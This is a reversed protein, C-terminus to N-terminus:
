RTMAIMGLDKEIKDFDGDPTSVAEAHGDAFVYVRAWGGAPSRRATKERLLVTKAPNKFTTLVGTSIVEFHTKASTLENTQNAYYGDVPDFQEPLAKNHDEAFMIFALAAQKGTNLRTDTEKQFADAEAAASRQANRIDTSALAERLRGNETALRAAEAQQQRLRTVEARLRLLESQQRHSDGADTPAKRLRENEAQLDSLQTAQQQLATNQARLQNIKGHQVALPTSVGAVVACAALALKLKLMSMTQITSKVLAITSATAVAGKVAVTTTSVTLAAPAAQVAYGALAAAIGAAPVAVGRKGLYRRLKELARNVRMKAADETVGLKLGVEGSSCGEFYRLLLADRDKQGLEGIAADLMPALHRWTQEPEPANLQANLQAQMHAEHERQVRRREGRLFNAATLRATQYLWGSLVVRASLRAAKRALIIFVAQTIEEAQHPNGTLRLGVSYVLNVYRKVLTAFATESDLRAFQALLDHDDSDAM